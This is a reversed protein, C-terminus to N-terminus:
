ASFKLMPPNFESPPDVKLSIEKEPNTLDLLNTWTQRIRGLARKLKDKEEPDSENAVTKELVNFWEAEPEEVDAPLNLVMRANDRVKAVIIEATKRITQETNLTNIIEEEPLHGVSIVKLTEVPLLFGFISAPNAIYHSYGAQTAAFAEQPTLQKWTIEPQSELKPQDQETM